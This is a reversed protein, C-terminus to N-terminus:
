PRAPSETTAPTQARIDQVEVGTSIRFLNALEWV